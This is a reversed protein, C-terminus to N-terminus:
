DTSDSLFEAREADATYGSNKFSKGNKAHTSMKAVYNSKKKGFIVRTGSEEEDDDDDSELGCTEMEEPEKGEVLRSYRYELNKNKQYFAFVAVILLAIVITAIILLLKTGDNLNTCFESVERTQAGSIVCHKSPIWHIKQRGDKCEGRIQEFDNKDCIPCAHSTEVIVHYLCGDCTGDPCTRPLRIQPTKTATPECRATLVGITGNPCSRFKSPVPEFFFHIDIPQNEISTSDYELVKDNLFFNKFSRNQTVAALKKAISFSSVFVLKEHASENQSNKLPVATSRCFTSQSDVPNVYPTGEFGMVSPMNNEKCELSKGFLSINYSHYYSSGERSFVKIGDAVIIHNKLPSLDFKVTKNAGENSPLTLNGTFGCQTRDESDLNPGCPVCSEPGIRSSSMNLATGPPCLVCGFSKIDIFNGPPCAECTGTNGNFSPCPRCSDAGGYSKKEAESGINTVNLSYIIAKDTLVDQGNAAGSRM